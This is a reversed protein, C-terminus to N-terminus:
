ARTEGVAQPAFVAGAPLLSAAPHRALRDLLEALFEWAAEDHAQHHSLIGSPEAADATGRRKAELHRCLLALAEGAGLFRRQPRWQLIDLHCNVQTLGPAPIARPRPGYASLAAFGLDPLRAVLAPDIRNWPPVMVPLLDAGFLAALRARGLALEDAIVPRRAPAILECKKTGAPAHDTHSFGHQLVSVAAAHRTLMAPLNPTARQPIVALALPAGTSVALELLRDLAACPAGADDDRWWFAARRGAAAWAALERDLGRWASAGAGTM